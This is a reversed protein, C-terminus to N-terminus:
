KINIRVQLEQETHRPDPRGGRAHVHARPLHHGRHPLPRTAPRGGDDHQEPQVDAVTM